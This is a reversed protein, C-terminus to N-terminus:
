MHPWLLNAIGIDGKLTKAREQVPLREITTNAIRAKVEKSTPVTFVKQNTREIFDALMAIAEKAEQKSDYKAFLVTSGNDIEILVAGPTPGPFIDIIKDLNFIKGTNRNFLFM